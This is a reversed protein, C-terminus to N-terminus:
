YKLNLDENAKALKILALSEDAMEAMDKLYKVEEPTLSGIAKPPFIHSKILFLLQKIMNM